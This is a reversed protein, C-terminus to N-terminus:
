GPAKGRPKPQPAPTGIVALLGAMGQRVRGPTRCEAAQPKQWPWCMDNVLPRALWLQWTLLPMLDSWREAQEPTALQPVTWFLDQKAFRHWHDVAFRRLYWDWWIAIPPPEAGHWGLWLVGPDRATHAADLREIRVVVLPQDAAQRFHLQRWVLIQVRGLDPDVLELKGVPPRQSRAPQGWTLPERLKFAPGHVAPRGRGAYPPPPGWLCLNPRLRFLKDAPIDHTARVFTACGYESDWLSVPRIGLPQLEESIRRLQSAGKQLPTEDSGIREFLLPPAWSGALEPVWSLTGFDYGITIPRNGAIKTPAHVIKRDRLTPASLRPWATHDGALLVRGASPLQKVYLRLLAERDPRGDQLAEYLSPWQRRFVPALALEAFSSIAPTVLVADALDFLAARGNGLCAYAVRRFAQLRTLQTDTSTSISTQM